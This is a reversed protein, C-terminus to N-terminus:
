LLYYLTGRDVGKSAILRTACINQLKSCLTKKEQHNEFTMTMLNQLDIVLIDYLVHNKKILHEVPFYQTALCCFSLGQQSCQQVM